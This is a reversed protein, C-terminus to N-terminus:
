FVTTPRFFTLMRGCCMVGIMAALSIGASLRAAAPVDDAPGLSRVARFPGAYFFAANAGMVFLFVLKLHFASNYFYQDPTGSIFLLGTALSIGFGVVALPVLRHLAAPAIGKGLGLLRLDFLGVAGVMLVLGTFHLAEAVPWAWAHDLVFYSMPTSTIWEMASQM